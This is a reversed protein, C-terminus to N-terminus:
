GLSDLFKTFKAIFINNYSYSGADTDIKYSGIYFDGPMGEVLALTKGGRIFFQHSKAVSLTSTVTLDITTFPDFVSFRYYPNWSGLTNGSAFYYIYGDSSFRANTAYLGDNLSFFKDIAGDTSNMVIFYNTSTVTNMLIFIRAPNGTQFHAASIQMGSVEAFRTAWTYQCSNLPLYVVFNRPRGTNSGIFKNDLSVGALFMNGTPDMDM